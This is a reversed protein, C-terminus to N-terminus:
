ESAAKRNRNYFKDFLEAYLSPKELFMQILEEGLNNQHAVTQEFTTEPDM